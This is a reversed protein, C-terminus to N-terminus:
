LGLTSGVWVTQGGEIHWQQWGRRAVAATRETGGSGGEGYWGWQWRGAVVVVRKTDGGRSM